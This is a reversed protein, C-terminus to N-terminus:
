VNPTKTLTRARELDEPTNVNLLMENSFGAALFEREEIIRTSISELLHHISLDGSKIRGEVEPALTRHYAACLPQIRGGTRTAVALTPAAECLDALFGLFSVSVLPLDVALVLNWDTHTHQLAAHLGALPGRGSFADALVTIEGDPNPSGGVVFVKSVVQQMRHCAHSLLTGNGWPIQAKDQEMRRSQGGALVFGTVDNSPM